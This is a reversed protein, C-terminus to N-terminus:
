AFECSQDSQEIQTRQFIERLASSASEKPIPAGPLVRVQSGRSLLETIVLGKDWQAVQRDHEIRRFRKEPLCKAVLVFGSARTMVGVQKPCKLAETSGM